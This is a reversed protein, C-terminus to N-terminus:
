GTLLNHSRQPSCTELSIWPAERPDRVEESVLSRSVDAVNLLVIRCTLAESTAAAHPAQKWPLPGM